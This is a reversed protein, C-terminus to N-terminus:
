MVVRVLRGAAGRRGEVTQFVTLLMWQAAPVVLFADHGGGGELYDFQVFGSRDTM